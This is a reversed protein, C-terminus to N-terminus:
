DIFQFSAFITQVVRSLRELTSAEALFTLEWARNDEDLIILRSIGITTDNEKSTLTIGRAMAGDITLNAVELIEVGPLTAELRSIEGEFYAIAPLDAPIDGVAVNFNPTFGDTPTPATVQLISDELDLQATWGLPQDISFGLEPVEVTTYDDFADASTTPPASDDTSPASSDTDSCATLMLVVVLVSAIRTMVTLNGSTGSQAAVNVGHREVRRLHERVIGVGRVEAHLEAACIRDLNRHDDAGYVLVEEADRMSPRHEREGITREGERRVSGTGPRNRDVGM